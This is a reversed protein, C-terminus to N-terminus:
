KNDGFFTNYNTVFKIFYDYKSKQKFGKNYCEIANKLDSYKAVCGSLVKASKNINYDPKFIFELENKSLNQKSIQMVGFDINFDRHWLIDALNIINQESNASISVIYRGVKGYKSAKIKFDSSNLGNKLTNILMKDTTIFSIIYPEFNSEISAITYLARSDFNNKVAIEKLSNAIEHRIDAFLLFPTALIFLLSKM